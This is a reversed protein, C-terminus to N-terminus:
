VKKEEYIKHSSAISEFPTVYLRHDEPLYTPEYFITNKQEWNWRPPVGNGPATPLYFTVDRSSLCVAAFQSVTSWPCLVVKARAMLAIDEWLDGQIENLNAHIGAEALLKQAEVPDDSVVYIKKSSLLGERKLIEVYSFPDVIGNVAGGLDPRTFTSRKDNLRVHIVVDPDLKHDRPNDDGFISPLGARKFRLKLDALVAEDCFPFYGQSKPTLAKVRYPTKELRRFSGDIHWIMRLHNVYKDIRLRAFLIVIRDYLTVAPKSHNPDLLEGVTLGSYDSQDDNYIEGKSLLPGIGLPYYGGTNVPYHKIQFPRNIKQSVYIAALLGMCQTAAGGTTRVAFPVDKLKRKSEYKMDIVSVYTSPGFVNTQWNRNSFRHNVASSM